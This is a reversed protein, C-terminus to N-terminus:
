EDWCKKRGFTTKCKQVTVTKELQKGNGAAWGYGVKATISDGQRKAVIGTASVWTNGPFHLDKGTFIEIFDKSYAMAEIGKFPRLPISGPCGGLQFTKTMKSYHDIQSIHFTASDFFGFVQVGTVYSSLSSFSGPASRRFKTAISGLGTQQLTASVLVAALVAFLVSRRM